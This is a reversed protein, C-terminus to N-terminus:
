SKEDNRLLRAKESSSRTSLTTLHGRASHASIIRKLARWSPHLPKQVLLDRLSQRQALQISADQRTPTNGATAFKQCPDAGAFVLATVSAVSLDSLHMTDSLYRGLMATALNNGSADAGELHAGIDILATLMAADNLRARLFIFQGTRAASQVLPAFRAVCSVDGERIKQALAHLIPECLPGKGIHRATLDNLEVDSLPPMMPSGLIEERLLRTGAHAALEPSKFGGLRVVTRLLQLEMASAVTQADDGAARRLCRAVAPALLEVLPEDVRRWGRASSIEHIVDIASPHVNAALALTAKIATADRADRGNSLLDKVLLCRARSPLKPMVLSMARLFAVAHQDRPRASHASLLLAGFPSITGSIEATRGTRGKRQGVYRRRISLAELVYTDRTRVAESILALTGQLAAYDQELAAQVLRGLAACPQVRHFARLAEAADFEFGPITDGFSLQKTM